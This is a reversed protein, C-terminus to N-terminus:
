ISFFLNDTGEEFEAVILSTSMRLYIKSGRPWDWKAGDGEGGWFVEDQPILYCIGM